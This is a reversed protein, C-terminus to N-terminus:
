ARDERPIRIAVVSMRGIESRVEMSHKRPYLLRLRQLVSYSGFGVADADVQPDEIARKLRALAEPDFGRGNDRVEIRLGDERIDAGIEIRFEGGAEPSFGHVLSNEVLPHLIMTPVPCELAEADAEASFVVNRGFTSAFLGVYGRLNAIEERFTVFKTDHKRLISRLYEGAHTALMGAKENEGLCTLADITALINCIFHPSVHSQLSRYTIELLEYEVEHKQSEESVIREMAQGLRGTMLNFQGALLGIEDRSNVEIVTDLRGSSVEEMSAILANVNRTISNSIIVAVVIAVLGLVLALLYVLQKMSRWVRLMSDMPECSLISWEGDSSSLGTVYYKKGGYEFPASVKLERPDFVSAVAGILSEDRGARSAVSKLERNFIAAPWSSDGSTGFISRLYEDDVRIAIIGLYQLPFIKFVDKKLYVGGAESRLWATPSGTAFFGEGALADMEGIEAESQERSGLHRGGDRDIVLIDRIYPAEACMTRLTSRLALDRSAVNVSQLLLGPLGSNTYLRFLGADMNQAFLEFSMLTQECLIRNAQARQAITNREGVWDSFVAISVSLSAIVLIFGLIMKDRLKM